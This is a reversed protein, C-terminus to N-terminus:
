ANPGVSLSVQQTGDAGLTVPTSLAGGGRFTGGSADSNFSAHTYSGAALDYTAAAWCVGVTAPQASAGLPGEVGGDEAQANLEADTWTIAM